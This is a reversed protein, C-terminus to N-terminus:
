VPAHVLRHRMLGITQVDLAVRRSKDHPVGGTLHMSFLTMHTLWGTM